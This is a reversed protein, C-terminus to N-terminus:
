VHARGIELIKKMGPNRTIFGGESFLGKLSAIETELRNFKKLKGLILDLQGPVFPKPLYDFAGMKVATVATEITAYATIMVVQTKIGSDIIEKLVELGDRDPLKLDLLVIEPKKEEFCKVGKEACDATFVTFDNDEFYIELATLINRDDDIVLAKKM